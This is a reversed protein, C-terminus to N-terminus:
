DLAPEMAGSASSPTLVATAHVTAIRGKAVYRRAPVLTHNHGGAQASKHNAKASRGVARGVIRLAEAPLPLLDLARVAWHRFPFAAESM